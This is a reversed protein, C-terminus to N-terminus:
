PGARRRSPKRCRKSSHLWSSRADARATRGAGVAALDKGERWKYQRGPRTRVRSRMNSVSVLCMSRTPRGTRTKGWWGDKEARPVGSCAPVSLPRAARRRPLTGPRNGGSPRCAARHGQCSPPRRQHVHRYRDRSVEGCPSWRKTDALGQRRCCHARRPRVCAWQGTLGSWDATVTAGRSKASSRSNSKDSLRSLSAGPPILPLVDAVPFGAHILPAAVSGFLM